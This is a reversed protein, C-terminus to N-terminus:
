RETTPTDPTRAPATTTGHSEAVGGQATLDLVRALRATQHDAEFESPSDPRAGTLSGARFRRYMEGLADAISEPDTGGVVTGGGTSRVLEATM